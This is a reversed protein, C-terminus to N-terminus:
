EILGQKIIINGIKYEVTQDDIVASVVSFNNLVVYNDGGPEIIELEWPYSGETYTRTTTKGIHISVEGVNNVTINTPTTTTNLDVAPSPGPGVQLHAGYGILNMLAGLSDRLLFTISFTQGKDITLKPKSM